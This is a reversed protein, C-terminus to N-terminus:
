LESTRVSILRRDSVPKLISSTKIILRRGCVRSWRGIGYLKIFGFIISKSNQRFKVFIWMFHCYKTISLWNVMFVKISNPGLPRAKQFILNSLGCPSM